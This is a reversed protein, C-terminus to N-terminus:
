QSAQAVEAGFGLAFAVLTLLLGILSWLSVIYFDAAISMRQSVIRDLAGRAQVQLAINTPM